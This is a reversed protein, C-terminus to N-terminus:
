GLCRYYGTGLEGNNLLLYFFHGSLPMKYLIFRSYILYNPIIQSLLYYFNPYFLFLDPLTTVQLNTKIPPHRTLVM